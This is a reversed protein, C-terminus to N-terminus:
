TVAVHVEYVVDGGANLLVLDLDTGYDGRFAQDRLMDGMALLAQRRAANDDVATLQLREDVGAVGLKLRYGSM